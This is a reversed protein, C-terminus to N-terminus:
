STAVPATSQLAVRVERAMVRRGQVLLSPVLIERIGSQELALRSLRLLFRELSDVEIREGGSRALVAAMLPGREIMERATLPTLPALAQVAEGPTQRPPDRKGLAIVPGLERHVTSSLAAEVAGGPILPGLVLRPEATMGFHERALLQLSRVARRVGDADTAQLRVVEGEDRGQGALSSAGPAEPGALELLVPYGLANAAEVAGGADQVQCRRLIPLGYATFLEEVEARTLFARGSGHATAIVKAACAPQIAGEEAAALAERIEALFRLSEGYRCLYGFTRVASEPSRFTSVGAERLAPLSEPNNAEWLWCALVPKAGGRRVGRLGEAAALPNIPPAPALLVLVADTNPDRAALAAARTFRATDSDGGVEIPNRPAWEPTLVEGLKTITEPALPALCGGTTRVADAALVAPGRANSLIALRRGRPLPQSTLYAPLRFLDHFRHVRLVGNSRCAEDFVRDDEAADAEGASSAPSRGSKLLVIPKRPAVERAATFFSRADDLQEVYIGICRTHPDEALYDLWETWSIDILAGTSVAISCGVHESHERNLLAGLLAGSQTLFGVEGPLLMARACTANFGTRPCAVGFSGPGLVRMSGHRLVERVQRELDAAVPGGEGFCPSLVVAAKVGADLCQRLIEPISPAPSLVVALDVSEPLAGLAPYARIGLVSSRHPSIPYLVGGFPSRLLNFTLSRGMSAPEETAGFIAVSAPAFLVDLAHPAPRNLTPVETLVNVSM